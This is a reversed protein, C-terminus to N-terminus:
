SMYLIDRRVTSDIEIRSISKIEWTTATEEIRLLYTAVDGLITIWSILAYVGIPLHSTTTVEIIDHINASLQSGVFNAGDIYKVTGSGITLIGLGPIIADNAYPETGPTDISIPFIGSSNMYNSGGAADPGLRGHFLYHQGNIFVGRASSIGSTSSIDENVVEYKNVYNFSSDFKWLGFGLAVSNSVWYETNIPDYWFDHYVNGNATPFENPNSETVNSTTTVIDIFDLMDNFHGFVLRGSPSTISNQLVPNLRYISNNTTRVLGVGLGWTGSNGTFFASSATDFHHYFVYVLRNPM